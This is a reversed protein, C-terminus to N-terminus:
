TFGFLFLAFTILACCVINKRLVICPQQLNDNERLLNLKKNM